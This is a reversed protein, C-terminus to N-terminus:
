FHAPYGLHVSRLLGIADHLCLVKGNIQHVKNSGKNIYYKADVVSLSDGSMGTNTLCHKSLKELVVVGSIRSYV